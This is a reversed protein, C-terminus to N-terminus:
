KGQKLGDILIERAHEESIKLDSALQKSIAYFYGHLFWEKQEITLPIKKNM